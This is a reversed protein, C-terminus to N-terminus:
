RNQRLNAGGTMRQGRHDPMARRALRSDGHGSPEKPIQPAFFDPRPCSGGGGAPTPGAPPHLGMDCIERIRIATSPRVSTQGARGTDAWVAGAPSSFGACATAPAPSHGGAAVWASGAVGSVAEASPVAGALEPEVPQVPPV